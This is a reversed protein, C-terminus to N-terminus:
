STPRSNLHCLLLFAALALAPVAVAAVVPAWWPLGLLWHVVLAALFALLAILLLAPGCGQGIAAMWERIAAIM